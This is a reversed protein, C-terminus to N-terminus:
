LYVGSKLLDNIEEFEDLTCHINTEILENVETYGTLTGLQATM